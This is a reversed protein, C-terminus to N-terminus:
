HLLAVLQMRYYVFSTICVMCLCCDSYFLYVPLYFLLFGCFTLFFGIYKCLRLTASIYSKYVSLQDTLLCALDLKIFMRNDFVLKIESTIRCPTCLPV